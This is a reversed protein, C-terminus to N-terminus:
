SEDTDLDKMHNKGEPKEALVEYAIRKEGCMGCAGGMGDEKIQGGLYYKTLV